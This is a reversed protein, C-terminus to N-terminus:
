DRPDDKLSWAEKVCSLLGQGLDIQPNPVLRVCMTPDFSYPTHTYHSGDNNTGLKIALKDHGLIERLLEFLEVRKHTRSGTLLVHGNLYRDSEIVDASLAAADAAHIYERLEEGDGGHDIVGTRIAERVLSFIYNNSYPRESYVSGYRVIVYDMGYRKHFEETVKESTLKSIGYFSGKTSMAYASSAYVFLKIGESACAELVNLNGMVNLNLTDWPNDSALDLNAFGALNFVTSAGSWKVAERVAARDLIDCCRFEPGPAGTWPALDAVSVEYGRRLLEEVLYMGVFGSGGFVLAKRRM